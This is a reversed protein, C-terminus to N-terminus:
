RSTALSEAPSNVGGQRAVESKRQNEFLQLHLKRYFIQSFFYSAPRQGLSLTDSYVHFISIM